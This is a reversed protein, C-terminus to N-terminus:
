WRACEVRLKYFMDFPMNQWGNEIYDLLIQKTTM